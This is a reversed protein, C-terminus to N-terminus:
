VCIQLIKEKLVLEVLALQPELLPVAVAVGDGVAVAAVDTALM